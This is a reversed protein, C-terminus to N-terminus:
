GDAGASRRNRPAPATADVGLGIRRISDAILEPEHLGYGFGM